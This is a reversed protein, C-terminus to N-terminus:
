KCPKKMVFPRSLLGSIAKSFQKIRAKNAMIARQQKEIIRAQDQIIERHHIYGIFIGLGYSIIFFIFVKILKRLM